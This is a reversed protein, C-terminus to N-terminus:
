PPNETLKVQDHFGNMATELHVIKKELETIKETLVTKESTLIVIQAKLMANDQQCVIHEAQLKKIERKVTKFDEELGEIISKAKEGLYDMFERDDKRDDKKLDHRKQWWQSIVEWGKDLLKVAAVTVAVIIAENM